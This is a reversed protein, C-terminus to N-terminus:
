HKDESNNNPNTQSKYAFRMVQLLITWVNDDKYKNLDHKDININIIHEKANKPSGSHVFPNIELIKISKQLNRSELVCFIM